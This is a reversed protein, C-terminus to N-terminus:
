GGGGGGGGSGGAGPNDVVGDLSLNDSGAVEKCGIFISLGVMLCLVFKGMGLVLRKHTCKAM